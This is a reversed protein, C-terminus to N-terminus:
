KKVFITGLEPLAKTDWYYNVFLGDRQGIIVHAGSSESPDDCFVLTDEFLWKKTKLFFGALAYVMLQVSVMELSSEGALLMGQLQSFNKGFTMQQPKKEMLYWGVAARKKVCSSEEFDTTLRENFWVGRKKHTRLFIDKVSLPFLAVLVHSDKCSVLEDEGIVRGGVTQINWLYDLQTVAPEVGFYDIADCPGFFNDGMISQARAQQPSPRWVSKMKAHRAIEGVFSDNEKIEGIIREAYNGFSGLIKQVASNVDGAPLETWKM